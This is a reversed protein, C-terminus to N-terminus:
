SCVDGGDASAHACHTDPDGTAAVAHYARCELSDGSTEGPSGKPFGDCTSLCEAEDAYTANGDVCATLYTACYDDCTAAMTSGPGGSTGATSTDTDDSKGGCAVLTLALLCTSLRPNM